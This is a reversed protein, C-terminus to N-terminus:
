GTPVAPYSRRSQAERGVDKGMRPLYIVNSRPERLSVDQITIHGDRDLQRVSFRREDQAAERNLPAYFEGGANVQADIESVLTDSTGEYTLLTIKSNASAHGYVVNVAPHHKVEFMPITMEVLKIERASPARVSIKDGAPFNPQSGEQTRLGLRFTADAETVLQVESAAPGITITIPLTPEVSGSIEARTLDLKLGPRRIRRRFENGSTSVLTANVIDEYRLDWQGLLSHMFLGSEDILFEDTYREGARTIAIMMTTSDSSFGALTDDSFSRTVVLTPIEIELAADGAAISLRDGPESNISRGENDVFDVGWVGFPNFDHHTVKGTSTGRLIGSQNRISVTITAGAPGNGTLRRGTERVRLCSWSTELSEGRTGVVVVSGNMGPQIDAKGVFSAMFLGTDNTTATVTVPIVQSGPLDADGGASVIVSTNPLARGHVVDREPDAIAVIRPIDVSVLDGGSTQIGLHDGPEIAVDAAMPGFYVDATFVGEADAAVRSEGRVIGTSATLTTTVVANPITRGQIRPRGIAIRLDTVAQERASRQFGIPAGLEAALLALAVMYIIRMIQGKRAESHSM